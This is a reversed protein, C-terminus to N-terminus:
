INKLNALFIDRLKNEINSIKIKSEIKVSTIKKNDLGCPIIKKYYNL